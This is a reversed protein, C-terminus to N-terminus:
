FILNSPDPIIIFFQTRRPSKDSYYYLAIFNPDFIIKFSFTIILGEYLNASEYYITNKLNLFLLKFLFM